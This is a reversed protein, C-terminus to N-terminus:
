GHKEDWQVESRMTRDSAPAVVCVTDPTGTGPNDGALMSVPVNLAEIRAIAAASGAGITHAIALIM